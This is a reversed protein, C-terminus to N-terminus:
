TVTRSVMSADIDAVSEDTDLAYGCVYVLGVANDIANAKM